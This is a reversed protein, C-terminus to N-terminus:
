RALAVMMNGGTMPQSAVKTRVSAIVVDPYVETVATGDIHRTGRDPRRLGSQAAHGPDDVFCDDVINALVAGRLVPALADDTRVVMLM